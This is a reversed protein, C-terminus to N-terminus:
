ARMNPKWSIPTDCLLRFLLGNVDTHMRRLHVPALDAKTWGPFRQQAISAILQVVPMWPAANPQLLLSHPLFQTGGEVEYVWLTRMSGEQASYLMTPQADRVPWGQGKRTFVYSSTEVEEPIEDSVADEHVGDLSPTSTAEGFGVVRAAFLVHLKRPVSVIGQRYQVVISVGDPLVPNSTLLDYPTTSFLM